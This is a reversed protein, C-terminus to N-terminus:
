LYYLLFLPNHPHYFIMAKIHGKVRVSCHGQKNTNYPLSPLTRVLLVLLKKALWLVLTYATNIKGIARRPDVSSCSNLQNQHKRATINKQDHCKAM